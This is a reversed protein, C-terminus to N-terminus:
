GPGSGPRLGTRTPSGGGREPGAGEGRAGGGREPGAGEGRAGGGREPGAGEGRAGGGREPGRGESRAGGGREPGAGESRAGGRPPRADQQKQARAMDTSARLSRTDTDKVGANGSTTLGEAPEGTNQPIVSEEPRISGSPGTILRKSGFMKRRQPLTRLATQGSSVSLLLKFRRGERGKDALAQIDARHGDIREEPAGKNEGAGNKEPVGRLM